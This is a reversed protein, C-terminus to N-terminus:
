EDLAHAWRALVLDRIKAVRGESIRRGFHRQGVYVGVLTLTPPWQDNYDDPQDYAYLMRMVDREVPTLKTLAADISLRTLILDELM